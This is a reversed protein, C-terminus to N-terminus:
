CPPGNPAQGAIAMGVVERMRRAAGGDQFRDFAPLILSWDGLGQAAPEGARYRAIAELAAELHPYVVDVRRYLVDNATRAGHENLLVSRCGALAAELAATAGVINGIVVDCSQAVEAPLVSNRHQGASPIELRGTSLALDLAERIRASGREMSHHFQPKLILGLTPDMRLLHLLTLVHREYQSVHIFGFRDSQVSEDFVGIVFTAGAAALRARRQAAPCAVIPFVSDYLYGIDLFLPRRLGPWCWREEFLRSFTLMTDATTAMIISPYILNSYQYAITTIGLPQAAIQMADAHLLHSEGALFARVNHAVCLDTMDAAVAVLRAVRAAAYRDARAAPLCARVALHRACRRLVRGRETTGRWSRMVDSEELVEIREGSLVEASEKVAFLQSFRLVLTRFAPANGPSIWHPQRRRAVDLSIDDEQLLLVSPPAEKRTVTRRRPASLRRRLLWATLAWPRGRWGSTKWGGIRTEIRIGAHRLAELEVPMDSPWHVFVVALRADKALTQAVFIRSLVDSCSPWM